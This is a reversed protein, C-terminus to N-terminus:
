FKLMAEKKKRRQRRNIFFSLSSRHELLNLHWKKQRWVRWNFWHTHISLMIRGLISFGARGFHMNDLISWKDGLHRWIGTRVWQQYTDRERRHTNPAVGVHGAIGKCWSVRRHRQWCCCRLLLMLVVRMVRDLQELEFDTKILGSPAIKQNIPNTLGSAGGVQTVEQQSEIALTWWRAGSALSQSSWTQQLSTKRIQNLKDFFCENSAWARGLRCMNRFEGREPSRLQPPLSSLTPFRRSFRTQNFLQFFHSLIPLYLM